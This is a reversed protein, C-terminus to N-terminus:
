TSPRTALQELVREFRDPTTGAGFALGHPTVWVGDAYEEIEDTMERVRQRLGNAADSCEHLPITEYAPLIRRSIGYRNGFVTGQDDEVGKLAYSLSKMLYGGARKPKRIREIRAFGFGWLSELHAAFARFESKRVRYSTLMHVHPNEDRLNEAVWIYVLTPHGRRRLWENLGNLTRKVEKGLMLEGDLFAPREEARVTFTIFTSLKIGLQDAKIAAGKIQRV